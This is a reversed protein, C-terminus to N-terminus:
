QIRRSLMEEFRSKKKKKLDVIKNNDKIFDFSKNTVKIPRLIDKIESNGIFCAKGIDFGEHNEVLFEREKIDLNVALRCKVKDEGLILEATKENALKFIIKNSLCAKLRPDLSKSDSRQTALTLYIGASRGERAIQILKEVITKKLSYDKEYEDIPMFDAIEDALFHIIPLKNTAKENYDFLNFVMDENEFLKNRNRCEKLLRDLLLNLKEINDAYYDCQETNKFIRLDQKNSIMGLVVRVKDRNNCTLINLIGQIMARTKGSNQMGSIFSNAMISYDLIIPEYNYKMGVFFEWPNVKLPKFKEINIDKTILQVEAMKTEKNWKIFSRGISDLNSSYKYLLDFNLGGPIKTNIIYGVIEKTNKNKIPQIDKILFTEGRSNRISNFVKDWEFKIKEEECIKFGNIWVKALIRDNLKYAAIRADFKYELKPIYSIFEELDGSNLEISMDFGYEKLSYDEFIFAQELKFKNNSVMVDDFTRRIERKIKNRKRFDYTLNAIGALVVSGVYIEALM